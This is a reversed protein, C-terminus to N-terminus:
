SQRHPQEVESSGMTASLDQDILPETAYAVGLISEPLKDYEWPELESSLPSVFPAKQGLFAQESM